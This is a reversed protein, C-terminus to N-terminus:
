VSFLFLLSFLFGLTWCVYQVEFFSFFFSFSLFYVKHYVMGRQHLVDPDRGNFLEVARNLDALAGVAHGMAARTQGRRKWCDPEMPNAQNEHLIPSVNDRGYVTGASYPNFTSGFYFGFSIVAGYCCVCHVVMCAPILLAMHSLSVFRVTQLNNKQDFCCEACFVYYRRSHWLCSLLWIFKIKFFGVLRSLEIYEAMYRTDDFYLVTGYRVM